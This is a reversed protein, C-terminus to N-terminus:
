IYYHMYSYEVTHTPQMLALFTYMKYCKRSNKFAAALGIKNRLICVNFTSFNTELGKRLTRGGNADGGNHWACSNNCTLAPSPLCIDGFTPVVIATTADDHVLDYFQNLDCRSPELISTEKRREGRVKAAADDDSKKGTRRRSSSSSNSSSSSSSKPRRSKVNASSAAGGSSESDGEEEAHSFPSYFFLSFIIEEYEIRPSIRKQNNPGDIPPPM